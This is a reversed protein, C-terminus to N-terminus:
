NAYHCMAKVKLSTQQQKLIENHHDDHLKVSLRWDTTYM